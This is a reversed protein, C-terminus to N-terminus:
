SDRLALPSSPRRTSGFSCISRNMAACMSSAASADAAMQNRSGRRSERQVKKEKESEKEKSQGYVVMKMYDIYRQYALGGLQQSVAKQGTFLEFTKSM